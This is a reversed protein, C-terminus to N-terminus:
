LAFMTKHHGYSIGGIAVKVGSGVHFSRTTHEAIVASTHKSATSYCKLSWTM